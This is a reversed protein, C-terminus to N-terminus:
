NLRDCLCAEVEVEMRYLACPTASPSCAASSLWICFLLFLSCSTLWSGVVFVGGQQASLPGALHSAYECRLWNIRETVKAMCVLVDMWVCAVSSICLSAVSSLSMRCCHSANLVLGLKSYHEHTEVLLKFAHRYTIQCSKCWTPVGSMVLVLNKQIRVIVKKNLVRKCLSCM